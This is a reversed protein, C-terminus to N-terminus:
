CLNFMFTVSHIISDGFNFRPCLLTLYFFRVILWNCMFSHPVLVSACGCRVSVGVAAIFSFEFFYFAGCVITSIFPNDGYSRHIRKEMAYKDVEIKKKLKPRWFETKWQLFRGDSKKKKKSGTRQRNKGVIVCCGWLFNIFLDQPIRLLFSEM